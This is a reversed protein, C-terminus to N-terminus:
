YFHLNSKLIVKEIKKGCSENNRRLIYRKDTMMIDFIVKRPNIRTGLM